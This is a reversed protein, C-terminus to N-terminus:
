ALLEYAKALLECVFFRKKIIHYSLIKEKIPLNKIIKLDLKDIGYKEVLSCFEKKRDAYKRDNSHNCSYLVIMTRMFTLIRGEYAEKMRANDHNKYYQYYWDNLVQLKHPFDKQFRNSVSDPNIRYYYGENDVFVGKCAKEYVLLNFSLDQTKPFGPVFAIENERLFSTNYIKNWISVSDLIKYNYRSDGLRNMTAISLEDFDKKSFLIPEETKEGKRIVKGNSFVYNTFLVVNNESNIYEEIASFVNKNVFDDGDVFYIWEGAAKEFGLNRAANAGQNEQHYVKIREDKKQFEDCISGSSDTSGDDILLIEVNEYEQKILSDICEDLYKEVNYIAVVCTILPKM